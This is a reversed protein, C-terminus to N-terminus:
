SVIRKKVERSLRSQQPNQMKDEEEEVEVENAHTFVNQEENM